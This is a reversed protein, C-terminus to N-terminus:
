PHFPRDTAHARRSEGNHRLEEGVEVWLIAALAIGRM